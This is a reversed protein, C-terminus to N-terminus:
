VTLSKRVQDPSSNTQLAAQGQAERSDIALCARHVIYAVLEDLLRYPQPLRDAIEIKVEPLSCSMRNNSQCPVPSVILLDAPTTKSFCGARRKRESTQQWGCFLALPM